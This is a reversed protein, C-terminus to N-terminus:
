SKEIPIEVSHDDKKALPPLTAEILLTGDSNQKSRIQEINVEKPLKYEFRLDKYCKMKDEQGTREEGQKAEVKLIHDKITLKINEPEFGHLNFKLRYLRTGDENLIIPLEYARLPTLSGYFGSFGDRQFNDVVKEIERRTRDLDNFVAGIFDFDGDRRRFVNRRPIIDLANLDRKFLRSIPKNLRILDRCGRYAM